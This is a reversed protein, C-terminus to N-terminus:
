DNDAAKSMALNRITKQVFTQIIGLSVKDKCVSLGNRDKFRRVLSSVGDESAGDRLDTAALEGVTGDRCGEGHHEIVHHM